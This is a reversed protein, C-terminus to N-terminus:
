LNAGSLLCAMLQLKPYLPHIESLNSPLILLTKSKKIFFPPQLLMKELKPFWPAVPWHPLIMLIKPSKDEQIKRLIRSILIFPPFIYGFSNWKHHFANIAIANPDPYFSMYNSLQANSRSAFLDIDPYGFKVSLHQFVDKDLMWETDVRVKRSHSDAINSKGAIHCASLWIGRQKSWVILQKTYGNVRKSHTGGLNNIYSVATQNDMQIQIHCNTLDSCLSQIGLLGAKMELVNIHLKREEDSWMGHTNRGAFVAGWAHGSADTQIKHDANGHSIAKGFHVGEQIWWNIEERCEQNLSTLNEYNYHTKLSKIKLLELHRYYLPGYEVAPFCAVFTGILKALERITILKKEAIEKAVDLVHKKKEKSLYVRMATSDLVFGLHQLKKTPEYISKESLEFGLSILLDKTITVNKVCEEYGSAQLYFDDIYVSSILGKQRLVALVPKLIKTFIRPSDRFGQPLVLYQYVQNDFQFKLYKTYDQHIPITHYANCLDISAMYCNPEMLNLCTTLGDMKFHVLEVFNKNLSKLNLIPRYKKEEELGSKKERLFINNMYDGDNFTCKEIVKQKVLESIINKLVNREELSFQLQQPSKQQRPQNIFNIKSGTICQLVFKDDTIKEWNHVFAKTRGGM